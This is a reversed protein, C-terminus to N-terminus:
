PIVPFGNKSKCRCYNIIFHRSLREVLSADISKQSNILKNKFLDLITLGQIPLIANKLTENGANSYDINM